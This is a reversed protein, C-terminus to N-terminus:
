KKKRRLTFLRYINTIYFQSVNFFTNNGVRLSSQIAQLYKNKLKSRKIKAVPMKDDKM